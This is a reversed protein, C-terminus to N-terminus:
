FKYYISLFGLNQTYDAGEFNSDKHLFRYDLGLTVSNTLYHRIGVAAGVRKAEEGLAGSTEYYEYFVTPSIATKRLGTWEASYEVHYLDYYNSFFGIEATKSASLRHQFIESPKNTVEFRVYYSESDESDRLAAAVFDEGEPGLDLEDGVARVFRDPTYDGDYKLQQFGAELYLSTADTVQWEIFPGVMLSDGDARSSSDFNIFSYSAVVGTRLSPTLAFSPKLFFTDISRDQDSFASDGTWLDLHDYGGTLTVSSNMEWDARIGIQNEFRRYRAENSLVPIDYPDEQYSFRDRATFKVSGVMFVFELESTPSILLGESDFESHNLYKAYSAGLSFRLTNLESIAWVADINLSPRLVIDSKRDDDSLTINDNFEVGFGAAMSFRLPGAAFNYNDERKASQAPDTPALGSPVTDRYSYESPMIPGLGGSSRSTGYERFYEQAPCTM